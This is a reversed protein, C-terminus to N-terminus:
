EVASLLLQELDVPLRYGEETAIGSPGGRIRLLYYVMQNLTSPRLDSYTISLVVDGM